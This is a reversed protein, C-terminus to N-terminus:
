PVRYREDAGGSMLLNTFATEYIDNGGNMM